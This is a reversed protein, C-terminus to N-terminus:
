VIKIYKLVAREEHQKLLNILDKLHISVRPNDTSLGGTGVVFIDDNSQNLDAM